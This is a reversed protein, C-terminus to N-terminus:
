QHLRPCQIVSGDSNHVVMEVVKGAADKQFEIETKETRLFFKMESAAFLRYNPDGPIQLVLHHDIVIVNASRDFVKYQGVYAGLQGETLTIEKQEVLDAFENFRAVLADPKQIQILHGTDKWVEFTVMPVDAEIAGCHAFVDAIDADGVLILTPVRIQALRTVTPPTPRIELGGAVVL